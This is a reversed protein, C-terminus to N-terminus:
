HGSSGASPDFVFGADKLVKAVDEQISDLKAQSKAEVRLVLTPQTNSARVLAWGGDFNVRVGDLDITELGRSKFSTKVKDVVDFKVEDPCDM